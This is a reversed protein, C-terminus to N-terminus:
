ERMPSANMTSPFRENNAMASLRLFTVISFSFNILFVTLSAALTEQGVNVFRVKAAGAWQGIVVMQNFTPSQFAAGMWKGAAAQGWAFKRKISRMRTPPRRGDRSDWQCIPSPLCNADPDRLSLCLVCVCAAQAATGGGTPSPVVDVSRPLGLICMRIDVPARTGKTSRVAIM